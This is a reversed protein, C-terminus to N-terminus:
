IAKDDHNETTTILVGSFLDSQTLIDKKEEKITEWMYYMFENILSLNQIYATMSIKNILLLFSRKNPTEFRVTVPM